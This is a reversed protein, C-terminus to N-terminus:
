VTLAGKDKREMPKVAMCSTSISQHLHRHVRANQATLVKPFRQLAYLTNSNRAECTRSSGSSVGLSSHRQHSSFLRDLWICKITEKNAHPSCLFFISPSLPPLCPLFPPLSFSLFFLSRKATDSLCLSLSYKLAKYVM